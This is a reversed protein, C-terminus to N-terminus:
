HAIQKLLSATPYLSLQIYMYVCVGSCEMNEEKTVEHDSGGSLEDESLAQDYGSYGKRSVLTKGESKEATEEESAEDDTDFKSRM